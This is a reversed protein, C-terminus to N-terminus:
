MDYVGKDWLAVATKNLVAHAEPKVTATGKVAHKLLAQAVHSARVAICMVQAKETEPHFLLTRALLGAENMQQAVTTFAHYMEVKLADEEGSCTGFELFPELKMKYPESIVYDDLIQMHLAVDVAATFVINFGVGKMTTCGMTGGAEGVLAQYSRAFTMDAALDGAGLEAETGAVMCACVSVGTQRLTQAVEKMSEPLHALSGEPAAAGGHVEQQTLFEKASRDLPSCDAVLIVVRAAATRWPLGTCSNKLGEAVGYGSDDRPGNPDVSQVGVKLGAWNNTFPMRTNVSDLRLEALKKEAAKKAKVEDEAQAQLAAHPIGKYTVVGMQVSTCQTLETVFQVVESNGGGGGLVRTLATIGPKMAESEEVLFAVDVEGAGRSPTWLSLMKEPPADVEAEEKGLKKTIKPRLQVPIEPDADLKVTFTHTVDFHGPARLIAEYTGPELYYKHGPPTWDRDAVPGGNQKVLKTEGQTIKEGTGAATPTFELELIAPFEVLMNTTGYKHVERHDVRQWKGFGEGVTLHLQLDLCEVHEADSPPFLWAEGSETVQGEAKWASGAVPKTATILALERKFNGEPAVKIVCRYMPATHIPIRLLKHGFEQGDQALADDIDATNELTSDTASCVINSCGMPVEVLAKPPRGEEEVRLATTEVRAGAAATLIMGEPAPIEKAKGDEYDFVQVTVQLQKAPLREAIAKIVNIMKPWRYTFLKSHLIHVNPHADGLQWVAMQVEFAGLRPTPLGPSTQGIVTPQERPWKGMVSGPRGMTWALSGDASCPSEKMSLQKTPKCHVEIFPFADQIHGTLNRSFEVYKEEDHRTTTPHLSCDSCHEITIVVQSPKMSTPQMELHRVLRYHALL